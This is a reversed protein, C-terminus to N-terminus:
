GKKDIENFHKLTKDLDDFTFCGVISDVEQMLCDKYIFLLAFHDDKMEEVRAQVQEDTMTM